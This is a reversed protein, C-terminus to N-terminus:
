PEEGGDKELGQASNGACPVSRGGKPFIGTVVRRFESVLLLLILGKRCYCYCDEGFRIRSEAVSDM